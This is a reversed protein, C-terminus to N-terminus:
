LFLLKFIKGFNKKLLKIKEVGYTEFEKEIAQAIEKRPAFKAYAMPLLESANSLSYYDVGFSNVLERVSKGNENVEMRDTLVIAAIIKVDKLNKLLEINKILSAGTTAVDELLITKGKPAGIFFRDKVEGHDKPKGRGMPLVYDKNNKKKKQTAWKYQLILAIKTAAEPVGYFCDCELNKDQVFSIIFDALEDILEVSNTVNRWNVYWHSIRGSSLKIPKEFFGIIGNELIFKNFKKQNFRAM